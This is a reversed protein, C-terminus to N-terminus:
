APRASSMEQVPVGRLPKGGTLLRRHFDIQGLHYTLHTACHILLDGTSVRVGGIAEPYEMDLRSEPLTALAARVVERTHEISALLEARSRDRRAFEAPRDRVYGTGGLHTGVLFQLNGVIHAALAGGPNAIGPAVVWLDAETAYAEVQAYLSRLDRDLLGAVWGITGSM